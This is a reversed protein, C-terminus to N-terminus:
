TKNRGNGKTLKLRNVFGLHVNWFGLEGERLDNIHIHPEESNLVAEPELLTGNVREICEQM